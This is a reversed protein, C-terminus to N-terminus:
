TNNRTYHPLEKDLIKIVVERLTKKNEFAYRDLRYKLEESVEAFVVPVKM